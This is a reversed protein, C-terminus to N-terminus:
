SCFFTLNAAPTGARYSTGDIIFSIYRGCGVGTDTIRGETMHDPTVYFLRSGGDKSGIVVVYHGDASVAHDMVTVTPDALHLM